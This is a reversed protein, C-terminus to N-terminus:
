YRALWSIAMGYCLFLVESPVCHYKASRPNSPFYKVSWAQGKRLMRRLRGCYRIPFRKNRNQHQRFLKPIAWTMDRFICYTCISLVRESFFCSVVPTGCPYLLYLKFPRKWFLFLQGSSYWLSVAKARHQQVDINGVQELDHFPVEMFGLAIGIIM